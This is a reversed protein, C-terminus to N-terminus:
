QKSILSELVNFNINAIAKDMLDKAGQMKIIINYVTLKSANAPYATTTTKIDFGPGNNGTLPPSFKGFYIGEKSSMWDGDGDKAMPSFIEFAAGKINHTVVTKNKDALKLDTQTKNTANIIISIYLNNESESKKLDPANGNVNTMAETLAKGYAEM